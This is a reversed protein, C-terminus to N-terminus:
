LPVRSGGLRAEHEQKDQVFMAYDEPRRVLDALDRAARAVREFGREQGMLLLGRLMAREGQDSAPAHTVRILCELNQQTPIKM